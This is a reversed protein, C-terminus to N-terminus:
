IKWDECLKNKDTWTADDFSSFVGSLTEPNNKEINTMAKVIAKGIDQTTNRVDNWHCGEPIVFSHMDEAEAYEIDGGSFELAEAYEEDYVESIRKFFM